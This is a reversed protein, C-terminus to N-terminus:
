VLHVLKKREERTLSHVKKDQDIDPVLSLIASATGAPVFFKFVNRLGKNKNQDIIETLKKDLAGLDTTPFLDIAVTVVGAHLLDAVEGAANLILPGSLGFHTCLVRGKLALQKEGGVFFTVRVDDLSVGALSHIWPDRLALPVVSPTPEEVTLGLAKLWGFAEGTSGTEPRSKGGTALVYADSVLTEDGVRIGLIEGPGSVFGSVVAGTRIEVNGSRVYKELVAVVDSARETEPFARKGGQVVL